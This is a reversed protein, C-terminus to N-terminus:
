KATKKPSIKGMWVVHPEELDAQNPRSPDARHVILCLIHKFRHIRWVWEKKTGFLTNQTYYQFDGLSPLCQMWFLKKHAPIEPTPIDLVQGEELIISAETTLCRISKRLPTMKKSFFTFFADKGKIEAYRVHWQTKEQDLSLLIKTELRCSETRRWEACYAIHDGLFELLIEKSGNKQSCFTNDNENIRLADCTSIRGPEPPNLANLIGQIDLSM